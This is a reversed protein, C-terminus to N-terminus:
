RHRPDLRLCRIVKMAPTVRGPSAQARPRRPPPRRRIGRSALPLATPRRRPDGRPADRRTHRRGLDAPWRDRAPDRQLPVLRPPRPGHPTPDPAGCERHPFLPKSMTRTRRNHGAPSSAVAPSYPHTTRGRAPGTSYLAREPWRPVRSSSIPSGCAHTPVVLDALRELFSGGESLRKM